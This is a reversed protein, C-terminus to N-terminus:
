RCAPGGATPTQGHGSEGGLALLLGFLVLGIGALTYGNVHEHRVLVALVTALVPKLFFTVSARYATTKALGYYYLGYALTTGALVVYLLPFLAKMVEPLIPVPSRWLGVPLVVLSGVLSSVGM